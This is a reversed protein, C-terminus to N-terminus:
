RQDIANDHFAMYLSFLRNRTIAKFAARHAVKKTYRKQWTAMFESVRRINDKM